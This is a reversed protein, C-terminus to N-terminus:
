GFYLIDPPNCLWEVGVPEFKGITGRHKINGKPIKCWSLNSGGQDFLRFLHTIKAMLPLIANPPDAGLWVSKQWRLYGFKEMLGGVKQLMGPHDIDYIVLYLNKEDGNGCAHAMKEHRKLVKKTM